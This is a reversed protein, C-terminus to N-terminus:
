EYCPIESCADGASPLYLHSGLHLPHRCASVEQTYVPTFCQTPGIRYLLASSLLVDMMTHSSWRCEELLDAKM